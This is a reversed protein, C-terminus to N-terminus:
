STGNDAMPAELHGWGVNKVNYVFQNHSTSFAIFIFLDEYPTSM